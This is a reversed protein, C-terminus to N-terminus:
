DDDCLSSSSRYLEVKCFGYKSGAEKLLVPSCTGFVDVSDSVEVSLGNGREARQGREMVRIIATNDNNKKRPMLRQRRLILNM